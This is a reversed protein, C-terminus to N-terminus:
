GKGGQPLVLRTMSTDAAKTLDTALTAMDSAAQQDIKLALERRQIELLEMKTEPVLTRPMIDFSLDGNTYNDLDFATFVGQAKSLPGWDGNNARWGAIATAMGFLAISGRDYNAASEGVLMGVDGMVRDAAPGTLQSMGRLEKYFCLEPHDASIEDLLAQVVEMAETIHLNGVLSDVKGGAPGSLIQINERNSTIDDRLRGDDSYESDMAARKNQKGPGTIQGINGEAWLIAPAEIARHIQDHIHSALSNLQDIKGMSGYIAPAGFNGGIEKHKVWVAPVFGYPNEWREGMGTFDFPADNKFTAYEAITVDKRYMYTMGDDGVAPYQLQYGKLNGATDLDLWTVLGPWVVHGSVRGADVDDIVELLVNGCAAGYRVYVAKTSQWNSWRWFQAIADKLKPDTDDALPIALQMGDPLKEADMSLVGPYVAGAYFDVLRRVPTHLARTERYLKHRGKYYAWRRYEEYAEGSYHSWLMAYYLERNAQVAGGEVRSPDDYFRRFTDIGASFGAGIAQSTATLLRGGLM